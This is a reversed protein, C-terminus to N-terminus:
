PKRRAEGLAISEPELRGGRTVARSRVAGEARVYGLESGERAARLLLAGRQMDGLGVFAEPFCLRTGLTSLLLEVYKSTAISGLLVVDVDDPLATALQRLDAALPERYRPDALDIPISAFGAVDALTVGAETSMLGRGGTIVLSGPFGPPPAGFARAYTLKGRFYLGSVFSFVDGLPMGAECRLRRAVEFDAEDRFLAQARKGGCHAPSLLFIKM